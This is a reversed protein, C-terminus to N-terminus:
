DFAMVTVKYSYTEDCFAVYLRGSYDFAIKTFSAQGTTFGPIGIYVWNLGNFKMVSAKYSLSSDNFVVYAEGSPSFALDISIVAGLSFGSNGVNKWCYDFYSSQSYPIQSYGGLSITLLIFIILTRM